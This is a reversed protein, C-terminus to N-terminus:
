DKLMIKLAVLMSQETSCKLDFELVYPGGSRDNGSYAASSGCQRLLLDAAWGCVGDARDGGGGRREAHPGQLPLLGPSDSWSGGGGEWSRRSGMCAWRVKDPGCFLPGFHWWDGPYSWVAPAVPRSCLDLTLSCLVSPCQSSPAATGMPLLIQFWDPTSVCVTNEGPILESSTLCELVTNLRWM